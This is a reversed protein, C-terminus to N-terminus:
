RGVLWDLQLCSNHIDSCVEEYKLNRFEFIFDQIYGPNVANNIRRISVIPMYLSRKHPLEHEIIFNM